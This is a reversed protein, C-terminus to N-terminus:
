DLFEDTKFSEIIRIVEVPFEIKKFVAAGLGLYIIYL